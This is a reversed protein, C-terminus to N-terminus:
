WANSCCWGSTQVEVKSASSRVTARGHGIGIFGLAPTGSKRHANNANAPKMRSEKVFAAGRPPTSHLSAPFGPNGSKRNANNANAPEM